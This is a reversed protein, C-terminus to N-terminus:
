YYQSGAFIQDRIVIDYESKLFKRVGLSMFTKNTILWQYHILAKLYVNNPLGYISGVVGM